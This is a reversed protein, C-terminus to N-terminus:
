KLNQVSNNHSLSHHHEITSVMSNKKSFGETYLGQGLNDRGRSRSAKQSILRRKFSMNAIADGLKRNSRYSKLGKQFVSAPEERSAQSMDAQQTEAGQTPMNQLTQMRVNYMIYKNLGEYDM